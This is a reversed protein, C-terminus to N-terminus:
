HRHLLCVESSRRCAGRSRYMDGIVRGDYSELFLPDLVDLGVPSRNSPPGPPLRGLLRGRPISRSLGGDAWPCGLANAENGRRSLRPQARSAPEPAAPQGPSTQPSCMLTRTTVITEPVCARRRLAIASRVQAVTLLAHNGPRGHSPVRGAGRVSSSRAHPNRGAPSRSCWGSRSRGGLGHSASTAGPKTM